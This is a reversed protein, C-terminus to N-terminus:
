LLTPQPIEARHHVGLWVALKSKPWQCATSFIASFSDLSSASSLIFSYSDVIKVNLLLFGFFNIIFPSLISQMILNRSDLLNIELKIKAAEEPGTPGPGKIEPKVPFNLVLNFTGKVIM